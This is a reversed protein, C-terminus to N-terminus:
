WYRQLRELMKRVYPVSTVDPIQQLTSSDRTTKETLYLLEQGTQDSKGTGYKSEFWQLLKIPPNKSPDKESNRLREMWETPPLAEFELGAERLAPHLEETYHFRKPNLVHYVLGTDATVSDAAESLSAGGIVGSLELITTAALDM